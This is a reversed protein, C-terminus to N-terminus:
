AYEYVIVCGGAGNGSKTPLTTTGMCASGGGGAGYGGSAADNGSMAGTGGYVPVGGGGSGLRSNAGAGGMGINNAFAIGAGGFARDFQEIVTCGSTTIGSATSGVSSVVPFTGATAATGPDAGGSCSVFSGFSSAIGALQANNSGNGGGGVSVAVSSFGTTILAKCYAGAQGGGCARANAASAATSVQQGAAGGAQVEVVLFQTDTQPTFTASLTGALAAGDYKTVKILRGTAGLAIPVTAWSADAADRMKLKGATTDFWLMFPATVTPASPGSNSSLIASLANNLDGRVAAGGGNALNYDHQSM